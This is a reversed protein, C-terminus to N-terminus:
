TTRDDAARRTRPSSPRDQLHARGAMVWRTQQHCARCTGMATVPTMIVFLPERLLLPGAEPVDPVDQLLGLLAGCIECDWPTPRLELASATM